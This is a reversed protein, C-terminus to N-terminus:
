PKKEIADIKKAAANRLAEPAKDCSLAAKYRALADAERGMGELIEGHCLQVTCRWYPDKLQEAELGDLEALSQAGKGQAALIRARAMVARALRHASVSDALKMVEGYAQLAKADDKAVEHSVDGQAQYAIAKNDPLVTFRVSALFDKEANASDRKVAWARGRWLLADFILADPWTEIDDAKCLVLVDDWRSQSCLVRVKTLKGLAPEGIRGAYEMAKDYKKQALACTAAQALSEDTARKSVNRGALEVFAAEAEAFKDSHYFKRASQFDQPFKGGLACASLLAGFLAIGGKMAARRYVQM